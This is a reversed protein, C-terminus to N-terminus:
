ALAAVKYGEARAVAALTQDITVVRDDPGAIALVFCDALSLRQRRSFHRARLEGAETAADRSPAVPAVVTSLLQELGTGVVDASWGHVRVLVDVTEAANVTCMRARSERLIQAIRPGAAERRLFAIVASADLV